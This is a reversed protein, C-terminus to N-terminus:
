GIINGATETDVESTPEDALVVAAGDVLLNIKESMSGMVTLALTGVMIGM